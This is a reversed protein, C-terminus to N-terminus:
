QQIQSNQAEKKIKKFDQVETNRYESMTYNTIYAYPLKFVTHMAKMHFGYYWKHM